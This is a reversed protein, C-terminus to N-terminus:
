VRRAARSTSWRSGAAEYAGMGTVGSCASMALSLLLLCMSHVRHEAHNEGRVTRERTM